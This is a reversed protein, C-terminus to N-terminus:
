SGCHWSIDLVAAILLCKTLFKPHREGNWKVGLARVIKETKGASRPRCMIYSPMQRDLATQVSQVACACMKLTTWVPHTEWAPKEQMMYPALNLTTTHSRATESVICGSIDVLCGSQVHWSHEDTDSTTRRMKSSFCPLPLVHRHTCDVYLWCHWPKCIRIAGATIVYSCPTSWSKSSQDELCGLGASSFNNCFPENWLQLHDRGGERGGERGRCWTGSRWPLSLQPSLREGIVAPTLCHTTSTPRHSM